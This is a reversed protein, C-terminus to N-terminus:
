LWNTPGPEGAANGVPVPLRPGSCPTAARTPWAADGDPRHGGPAGGAPRGALLELEATRERVRQELEDRSRRLEDEMARRETIDVCAGAMFLPRGDPRPLGRGPGQLWHLSGDPWTVRFEVNFDGGEGRCREFEARVRRPGGAHVAQLFDDLTM